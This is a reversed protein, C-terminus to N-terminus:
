HLQVLNDIKLNRGPGFRKKQCVVSDANGVRFVAELRYHSSRGQSIMLGLILLHKLVEIVGSSASGLCRM